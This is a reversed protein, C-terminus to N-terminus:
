KKKTPFSLEILEDLLEVLDKESLKEVDEKLMPQYKSMLWWMLEYFNEKENLFKLSKKTAFDYDGIKVEHAFERKVKIFDSGFLDRSNNIEDLEKAIQYQKFASQMEHTLLEIKYEKEGIKRVIPEELM